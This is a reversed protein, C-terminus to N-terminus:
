FIFKLKKKNYEEELLEGKKVQEKLQDNYNNVMEYPIYYNSQYGHEVSSIVNHGLEVVRKLYDDYSAPCDAVLINSFSKHCHYNQIM